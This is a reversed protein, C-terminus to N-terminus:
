EERCGGTIDGTVSQIHSNKGNQLAALRYAKKHEPILMWIYSVDIAHYKQTCSIMNKGSHQCVIDKYGRVSPNDIGLDVEFTVQGLSDKEWYSGQGISQNYVVLNEVKYCESYLNASFILLSLFLMKRM